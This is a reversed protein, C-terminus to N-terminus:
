QSRVIVDVSVLAGRPLASVGVVSRAPLRGAAFFGRYAADVREHFRKLDVVHIRVSVVNGKGLGRAALITELNAFAKGLQDEVMEPLAARDDALDIPLLGSAFGWGDALVLDAGLAARAAGDRLTVHEIAM